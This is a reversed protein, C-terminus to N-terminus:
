RQGWSPVKGVLSSLDGKAFDGFIPDQCYSDVTYGAAEAEALLKDFLDQVDQRWHPTPTGNFWHTRGEKALRPVAYKVYPQHPMSTYHLVKIEPDDLNAYQEGDLCNWNEGRPYPQVGLGRYRASMERHQGPNTKLWDLTVDPHAAACDWLSVCLRSNSKGIVPSGDLFPTDWLKVIDDMVIMDSDMWIAKGEHGCLEPIVWRFGSFPTPWRSCDWGYFPSTPDNSHKMYTIDLPQSAHKRLTYELVALSEADDHNPACGIFIRIM